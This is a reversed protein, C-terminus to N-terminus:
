KSSIMLKISPPKPNSRAWITHRKKEDEGWDKEIGKEVLPITNAPREAM